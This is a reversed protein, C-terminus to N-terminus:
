GPQHNLNNLGVREHVKVNDLPSEIDAPKLNGLKILDICNLFKLLPKINNGLVKLSRQNLDTTCKELFKPWNRSLEHRMGRYMRSKLLLISNEAM